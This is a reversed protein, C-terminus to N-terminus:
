TYSPSNRNADVTYGIHYDYTFGAGAKLYYFCFARLSSIYQKFFFLYASLMLLTVVVYRKM